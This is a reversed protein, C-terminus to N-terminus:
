RNAVLVLLALIGLAVLPLTVAFGIKLLDSFSVGELPSPKPAFEALPGTAVAAEPNHKEDLADLRARYHNFENRATDVLALAKALEAKLNANKWEEERIAELQDKLAKFSALANEINEGRRATEVQEHELIVLSRHFRELMEKRGQDYEDRKRRLEELENKERELEERKRQLELLHERTTDVKQTIEEKGVSADPPRDKLAADPSSSHPARDQDQSDSEKM